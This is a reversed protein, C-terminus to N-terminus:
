HNIVSDTNVEIHNQKDFFYECRGTPSRLPTKNVIVNHPMVTAAVAASKVVPASTSALDYPCQNPLMSVKNAAAYGVFQVIRMSDLLSQNIPM